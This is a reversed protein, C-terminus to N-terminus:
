PDKGKGAYILRQNEPETETKTLIENKLDLVTLTEDIEVKLASENSAKINLSIVAM